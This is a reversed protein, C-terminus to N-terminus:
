CPEPAGFPSGCMVEDFSMVAGEAFNGELGDPGEADPDWSWVQWHNTGARKYIGPHDLNPTWNEDGFIGLMPVDKAQQLMTTIGERTFEQMGADRIM